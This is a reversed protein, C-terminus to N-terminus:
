SVIQGNSFDILIERWSVVTMPFIKSWFELNQYLLYSITMLKVLERLVGGIVGSCNVANNFVSCTVFPPSISTNSFFNAFPNLSNNEGGVLALTWQLGYGVFLRNMLFLIWNKTKKSWFDVNLKKKRSTKVVTLIKLGDIISGM